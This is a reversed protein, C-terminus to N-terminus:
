GTRSRPWAALSGPSAFLAANALRDSRIDIGPRTLVCVPWHWLYIAYSREGLWRLPQLGLMEGLATGPHGAVGVVVAGLVAIVLFGGRYLLADTDNLM